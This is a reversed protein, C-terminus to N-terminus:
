KPLTTIQVNQPRVAKLLDTYVYKGYDLPAKLKKQDALQKAVADGGKPGKKAVTWPGALSRSTMWGDLVHIYSTSTGDQLILARTNLVRLLNSGPAPRWVPNGDVLVLMAPVQSFLFAPPDNRVPVAAGQKEAGIVKLSEELRDLSMTSPGGAVAAQLAAGYGAASAPASPFTSKVVQIDQFAVSRALKDVVTVATIEVVGFTPDKSGDALVSVAAHAAYRYGDWSDLQPQFITYTVGGEDLTRPWPDPTVEAAPPQPGPGAAPAPQARSAAPLLLLALAAFLTTTQCPRM